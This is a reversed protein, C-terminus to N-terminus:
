HTLQCCDLSNNEITLRILHRPTFERKLQDDQVMMQLRFELEFILGNVYVPELHLTTMWDDNKHSDTLIRANAHFIEIAKRIKAKGQEM